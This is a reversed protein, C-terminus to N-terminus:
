CCQKYKLRSGCPCPENRSAKSKFTKLLEKSRKQIYILRTYAPNYPTIKEPNSHNIIFCEWESILEIHEKALLSETLPKRIGQIKRGQYRVKSDPLFLIRTEGDTHPTPDILCDADKQWVAHAEFYIYM